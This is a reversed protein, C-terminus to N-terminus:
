KHGGSNVFDCWKQGIGNCTQRVHDSCGYETTPLCVPHLQGTEQRYMGWTPTCIIFGSISSFERMLLEATLESIKEPDITTQMNLALMVYGVGDGNLLEKITERLQKNAKKLIRRFPEEFTDHKGERNSDPLTFECQGFGKEDINKSVTVITNLKDIVGGKVFFDKDIIKLEVVIKDKKNIYDANNFTPSKGVIETVKQYGIQIFFLNFEKELEAPSKM